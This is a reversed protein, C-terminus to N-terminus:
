PSCTFGGQAAVCSTTCQLSRCSVPSVCAAGSARLATCTGGDVCGAVSDVCDCYATRPDCEDRRPGGCPSGPGPSPGCAGASCFFGRACGRARVIGNQWDTFLGGTCPGGDGAAQVCKGLACDLGDRCGVFEVCDAGLERHGRIAALCDPLALPFVLDECSAAKIAAECTGLARPDLSIGGDRLEADARAGLFALATAAARQEDLAAGACCREGYARFAPEFFGALSDRANPQAPSCALTLSVLLRPLLLRM